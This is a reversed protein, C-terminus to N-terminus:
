MQGTTCVSSIIEHCHRVKLIVHNKDRLCESVSQVNWTDRSVRESYRLVKKLM